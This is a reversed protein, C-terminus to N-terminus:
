LETAVSGPLLLANTGGGPGPRDVVAGGTLNIESATM